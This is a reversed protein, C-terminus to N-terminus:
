PKYLMGLNCRQYHAGYRMEIEKSDQFGYDRYLKIAAKCDTNTLLFLEKFNLGRAKELVFKLLERGTGQGRLAKSVAMKTLEYCGEEHEMLAATGVVDGNETEVLWISGGKSLIHEQPKSLVEYDYDEVVFMDSLWEINLALFREQHKPEYAVFKM